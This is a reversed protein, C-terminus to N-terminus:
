HLSRLRALSASTWHEVFLASLLVLFGGQLGTTAGASARPGFGVALTVSSTLHGMQM